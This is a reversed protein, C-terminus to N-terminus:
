AEPSQEWLIGGGAIFMVFERSTPWIVVPVFQHGRAAARVTDQNARVVAKPRSGVGAPPTATVPKESSKVIGVMRAQKGVMGADFSAGAKSM